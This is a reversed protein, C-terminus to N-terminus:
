HSLVMIVLLQILKLINFNQLMAGAEAALYILDKARNLDGDHNAAIDAIFYVPNNEGIQKNDIKFSKQDDRYEQAVLNIEDILDPLNVKFKNEFKTLNMMMNKPRYANLHSM